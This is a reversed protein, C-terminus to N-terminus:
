THQRAKWFSNFRVLESLPAYLPLRVIEILRNMKTVTAENPRFNDLYQRTVIDTLTLGALRTARSLAVYFTQKPIGKRRDLPTVVVGDHCTQGQLKETTCAFAPVVTFQDVTVSTQALNPFRKLQLSVHLRPLGIVGEPFGTILTSENGHVKILLLEPLQGLRHIIVGNVTYSTSDISGPSPFMGVINGIVGNAIIDADVLSPHKRTIMVPMGIYFLLKMPVRDTVDNTANAINEVIVKSRASPQAMCEFVTAGYVGAIKFIMFHNIACRMRNTCVVVPRYFASSNWTPPVEVHENVRCNLKELQSDSIRGWRLNDLIEAYVPDLRARMNKVLFVVFNIASYIAYGAHRLRNATDHPAEFCPHGGVPPLQLLDGIFLVHRGGMFKQPTRSMSRSVSDTGGLLTQHTISIEDIVVLVVLGFRTKMETSPVSRPEAGHM